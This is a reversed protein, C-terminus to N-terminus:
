GRLVRTLVFSFQLRPRSNFQRGASQSNSQYEGVHKNEIGEIQDCGQEGPSPRARFKCRLKCRERSPKGCCQPILGSLYPPTTCHPHRHEAPWLNVSPSAHALIEVKPFLHTRRHALNPKTQNQKLSELYSRWSMQNVSIPFQIAPVFQLALSLALTLKLPNHMTGGVSLEEFSPSTM